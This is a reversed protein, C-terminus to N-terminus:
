LQVAIFQSALLKPLSDLTVHRGGHSFDRPLSGCGDHHTIKSGDGPM